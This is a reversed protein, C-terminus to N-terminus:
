SNKDDKNKLFDILKSFNLGVGAFNPELILADAIARGFGKKMERQIRFDKLDKHSRIDAFLREILTVVDTTTSCFNKLPILIMKLGSETRTKQNGYSEKFLHPHRNTILIAPLLTEADERNIHHWSFVEDEFHVRHTGRIVVANNDAALSAMKEYNDMLAQGLQEHWGYDLLYIYYERHAAIPINNLSQVWLGM